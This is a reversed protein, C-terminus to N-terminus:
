GAKRFLSEPVPAGFTETTYRWVKVDDAWHDRPLGTKVKLGNLFKEPTQLGEWVKPLFTGRRGNSELILGDHGPRLKSLLDAEDGFALPAPNSLISIELEAARFEAATLPDFRPDEFGASVANWAIDAALPRHAKLSGICGRLRGQLNITVFSAAITRLEHPFTELNIEPRKHRSLRIALARAATLIMLDRHADAFRATDAPELAWAGYGVVRDKSGATDGSNRVDLETIRLGLHGALKLLGNVPRSGCAQQPGFAGAQLAGIKTVTDGDIQRAEDYTHYHSLDTSIVVLTEPGGWLQQLLRAVADPSADGVVIPVLLIDGLSRQLFPLHVELSHEQAHADDRIACDDRVEVLREIVARDLRVPGLPTDFADVSPLAFGKFAVRHAPGLLVVRRVQGKVPQVRQYASAAVAGSYVYGAHPAILAKPGSTPGAMRKQADTLLRDVAAQLKGAEGPYFTGAVAPSRSIGHSM